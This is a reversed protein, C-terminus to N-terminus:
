ESAGKEAKNFLGDFGGSAMWGEVNKKSGRAVAPCDSYLWQVIENMAALNTEDAAAFAQVLENALCHTLFSGPCIGHEIYRTAAGRMHEPLKSYDVIAM